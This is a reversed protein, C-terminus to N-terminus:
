GGIEVEKGCFDCEETAGLDADTMNTEDCHPCDFCNMTYALATDAM